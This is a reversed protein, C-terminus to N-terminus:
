YEMFSFCKKRPKKPKFAGPAMSSKLKRGCISRSNLYSGAYQHSESLALILSESRGKLV